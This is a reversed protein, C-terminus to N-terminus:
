FDNSDIPDNLDELLIPTSFDFKFYPNENSVGFKSENWCFLLLVRSKSSIDYVFFYSTMGMAM